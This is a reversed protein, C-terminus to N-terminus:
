NAVQVAPDVSRFAAVVTNMFNQMADIGARRTVGDKERWRDISVEAQLQSPGIQTFTVSGTFRDGDGGTTFKSIHEYVMRNPNEMRVRMAGGLFAARASRDDPIHQALSAQVAQMSASTTLHLNRHTVSKQREYQGKFLLNRKASSKATCYLWSGGFLVAFFLITAVM